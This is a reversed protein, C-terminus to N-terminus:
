NKLKANIANYKDMQETRAYLQKLSQMTNRDSPNIEHAKELIPIAQKFKEDAKAVEKQYKANDKITNAFNNYYAGLNFYLVGWNYWADFLDGKLETAKKYHEDAKAIFQEFDAPKPMDAGREDKPNALNDFITAALLHMYPDNPNKEIVSNVNALAEQSKKDWIFFYTETKILDADTPYAARGKKVVEKAGATDKATLLIYAFTNYTAAKGYGLDTLKGYLSKAKEMDGAAKAALAANYISGTDTVGAKQSITVLTEFGALAGAYNKKRFEAIAKNEIHKKVIPIQRKAADSYFGKGKEIELVKQYSELSQLADNIDVALYAEELRKNEPLDKLKLQEQAISYDVVTAYIDGRFAWSKADDKTSEHTVVKDILNKAKPLGAPDKYKVYEDLLNKATTRDATQAFVAIGAFLAATLILNKKM